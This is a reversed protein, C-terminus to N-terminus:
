HREVNYIVGNSFKMNFQEAKIIAKKTVQDAPRGAINVVVGDFATLCFKEGKASKLHLQAVIAQRCETIVQMTGCKTCESIDDEDAGLVKGNCKICSYYNDLKEIAYVRVDEIM